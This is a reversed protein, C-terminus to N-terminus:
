GGIRIRTSRPVAMLRGAPQLFVAEVGRPFEANAAALAEWVALPIGEMEPAIGPGAEIGPGALRVLLREASPVPPTELWCVVTAGEQPAEASGRGARAFCGAANEVGCVWVFDAKEPEAAGARTEKELLEALRRAAAEAGLVAYSVTEDLLCRGLALVAAFPARPELPEIRVCRGPRSFAELLRRFVRQSEHERVSLVPPM